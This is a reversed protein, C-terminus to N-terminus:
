PLKCKAAFSLESFDNEIEIINFIDTKNVTDTNKNLCIAQELRFHYSALREDISCGEKCIEDIRRRLKTVEKQFKEESGIFILLKASMCGQQRLHLVDKCIGESSYPLDLDIVALGNASTFANM